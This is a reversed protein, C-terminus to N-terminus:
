RACEKGLLGPGKQGPQGGPLVHPLLGPTSAAHDGKWGESPGIGAWRTLACTRCWESTQSRGVVQVLHAQGTGAPAWLRALPFPPVAEPCSGVRGSGHGCAMTLARCTPGLPLLVDGAAGVM